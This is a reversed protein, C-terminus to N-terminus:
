YEVLRPLYRAVKVSNAAERPTSPIGPFGTFKIYEILIRRVEEPECAAIKDLTDLGADHFLRARVRRHGGIRAQDSLKVLELIESYPIGTQQALAERLSPTRGAYVMDKATIIGREKLTQVAETRIDMFESLKFAEFHPTSFAEHAAASLREDGTFEYYMGIALFVGRPGNRIDDPTASDLTKGLGALYAEFHRVASTYRQAVKADKKNHKLFASFGLEDMHCV